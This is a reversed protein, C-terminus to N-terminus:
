LQSLVHEASSVAFEGPAEVFLHTVIGNDAILAFRKARLAEDNFPAAAKSEEEKKGCASLALSLVLVSVTIIQRSM